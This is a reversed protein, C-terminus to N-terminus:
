CRQLGLSAFRIWQIQLGVHLAQLLIAGLEYKEGLFGEAGLFSSLQLDSISWGTSL